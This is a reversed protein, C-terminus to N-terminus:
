DYRMSEIPSLSAAKKAPYIGFVVGVLMSFFMAALAATADFSVSWGSILALIAGASWGCIIGMVGGLGSIVVSEILFQRLIDSRTAGVAKRLGIERTRETVSVLMINMIGIGGVVLSVGAIIALLMSMTKSTQSIAEQIEAMNRIDFPSEEKDSIRWRKKLLATIDRQAEDMLAQSRIELEIEDVYNKGLLRKMATQVPIIIVDDRDRFADAGKSPLVGIVQFSVKNIKIYEGIPSEGGFVERVITQGIVAVRRRDHNEEETFFRGAIPKSDHIHEYTADTGYISSSWNKNQYTVQARGRVQSSSYRISPIMQTIAKADDETLRAVSGAELMVGGSRRAGSRVVLMNSGLSSLQKKISETAGKGLGLMTIVSAVGILIGLMSLFSRVKNSFLAKVGVKLDQLLDAGRHHQPHLEGLQAAKLESERLPTQRQDSIIKGDRMRILRSAQAGIEEEHTVMIITIGAQNLERLMRMIEVESKSDLNGTPEDAFIIRPNNILSRAIAVRQQQGGSLENTKHQTRDGLGVRTLVERAREFDMARESYLLPMAVNELATTRALLHFQQFIFGITERRVVALENESLNEVPKHDLQYTGTTPTDLLGLVNMLTSKGSGSPGMIAVFDGSDIELNVGDLAQVTFDGMVYSKTVGQIKIIKNM